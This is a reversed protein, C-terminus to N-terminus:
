EPWHCSHAGKPLQSPATEDDDFLEVGGAEDLVGLLTAGLEFDDLEIAGELEEIEPPLQV